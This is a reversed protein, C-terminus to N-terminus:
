DTPEAAVPAPLSAPATAPATNSKSDAPAIYVAQPSSLGMAQMITPLLQPAFVAAFLVVLILKNETLFAWRASSAEADVTIQTEERKARAEAIDALKITATATEQSSAKVDTMTERMATLTDHDEGVLKAVTEMKGGIITINDAVTDVRDALRRLIIDDPM